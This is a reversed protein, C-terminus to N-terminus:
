ASRKWTWLSSFTFGPHRNGPILSDILAITFGSGNAAAAATLGYAAQLTAPTHGSSSAAAAAAFQAKPAVDTRVLASCRANGPARTGCVHRSSHAADGLLAADHVELPLALGEIRLPRLELARNAIGRATCTELGDGLLAQVHANRVWFM